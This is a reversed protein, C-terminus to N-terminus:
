RRDFNLEQEPPIYFDNNMEDICGESNNYEEEFWEESTVLKEACKKGCVSGLNTRDTIVCHCVTCKRNPNNKHFEDLCSNCLISTYNNGKDKLKSFESIDKVNNCKYCRKNTVMMSGEMIYLSVM